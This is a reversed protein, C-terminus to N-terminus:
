CFATARKGPGQLLLIWTEPNRVGWRVGGPRCLLLILQLLSWPLGHKLERKNGDGTFQEDWVKFFMDYKEELKGVKFCFILLNVRIKIRNLKVIRPTHQWIM